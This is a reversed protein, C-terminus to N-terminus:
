CAQNKAKDREDVTTCSIIFRFRGEFHARFFRLRFQDASSLTFFRKKGWCFLLNFFLYRFLRDSLSICFSHYSHGSCEASLMKYEYQMRSLVYLILVSHILFKAAECLVREWFNIEFCFDYSNELWRPSVLWTVAPSELFNKSFLIAAKLKLTM